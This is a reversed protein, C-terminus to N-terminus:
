LHSPSGALAGTIEPQVDDFLTDGEALSMDLKGFDFLDRDLMHSPVINAVASFMNKLREPYSRDWQTLLEKM